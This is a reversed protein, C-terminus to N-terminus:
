YIGEGKWTSSCVDNRSLNSESSFLKFPPSLRNALFLGLGLTVSLVRNLFASIIWSYADMSRFDLVRCRFASWKGPQLLNVGLLNMMLWEFYFPVSSPLPQLLLFNKSSFLDLFPISSLVHFTPTSGWFPPSPAPAGAIAMSSARSLLRPPPPPRRRSTSQRCVRSGSGPRM